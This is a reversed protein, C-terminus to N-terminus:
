GGRKCIEPYMRNSCDRTAWEVCIVKSDYPTGTWQWRVCIQVQDKKLGQDSSATLVFASLVAILISPKLIQM